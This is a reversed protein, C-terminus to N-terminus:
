FLHHRENGRTLFRVRLVRSATMWSLGFAVLGATEFGFVLYPHTRTWKFWENALSAAIVGLSTVLCIRYIVGRVKAQSHSPDILYKDRAREFFRWCFYALILFMVSAAIAHIPGAASVSCEGL